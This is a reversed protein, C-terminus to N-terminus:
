VRMARHTSRRPTLEYTGIRVFQINFYGRDNTVTEYRDQTGVNVAVVQAGPVVLGDADTVTGVLATETALQAWAGSVVGLTLGVSLLMSCMTM